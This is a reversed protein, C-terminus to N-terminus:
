SPQCVRTPSYGNWGHRGESIRASSKGVSAARQKLLSAATENVQVGKATREDGSLTIIVGATVPVIGNPHSSCLLFTM